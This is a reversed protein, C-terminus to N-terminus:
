DGRFASLLSKFRREIFQLSAQYRVTNESFQARELELDVTNGDLSPQTPVRYLLSPEGALGSEGGTLHGANTRTMSSSDQISSAAKLANTFDFDRAKFNPTDVNALNNALLETRKARLALSQEHVGLAKEFGIAM